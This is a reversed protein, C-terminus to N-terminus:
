LILPSRTFLSIDSTYDQKTVYRSDPLFNPGLSETRLSYPTNDLGLGPTLCPSSLFRGLSDLNDLSDLSNM